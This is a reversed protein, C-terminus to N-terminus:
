HSALDLSKLRNRIDTIRSRFRPGSPLVVDYVHHRRRLESWRPEAQPHPQFTVAEDSKVWSGHLDCLQCCGTGDVNVSVLDFHCAPCAGPSGRYGTEGRGLAAGGEAARALAKEDWFIEGPGQGYGVFQDVVRMGLFLCTTALQPLAFQEWGRVGASAVVLAPKGAFDRSITGFRVLREQVIKVLGNAGLVYVPSGFVIADAGRMEEVLLHIGDDIVCPCDKFVCAMCGKCFKLEIDALAL